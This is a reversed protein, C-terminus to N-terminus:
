IASSKASPCESNGWNNSEPYGSYNYPREANLCRPFKGTKYIFNRKLRAKFNFADVTRVFFFRTRTNNLTKAKQFKSYDLIIQKITKQQIEQKLTKTNNIQTWTSTSYIQYVLKFNQNVLYTFTEFCIHMMILNVLLSTVKLIKNRQYQYCYNDSLILITPQNTLPRM